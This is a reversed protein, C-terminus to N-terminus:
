EPGDAAPTESRPDPSAEVHDHHPPEEGQPDERQESALALLRYARKLRKCLKGRIRDGADWAARYDTANAQAADPSGAIRLCATREGSDLDIDTDTTLTIRKGVWDSAKKSGLLIAISWQNTVNCRMQKRARAFTLVVDKSPKRKKEQAERKRDEASLNDVASITVTTEKGGLDDAALYDTQCVLIEASM